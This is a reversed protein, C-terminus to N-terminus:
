RIKDQGLCKCKLLWIHCSEDAQRVRVFNAADTGEERLVGGGAETVDQSSTPFADSSMMLWLWVWLTSILCLAHLGRPWWFLGDHGCWAPGKAAASTALQAAWWTSIRALPRDSDLHGQRLWCRQATAPSHERWFTETLSSPGESPAVSSYLMPHGSTESSQERRQFMSGTLIVRVSYLVICYLVICYLVICYLVILKLFIFLFKNIGWSSIVNRSGATAYEM